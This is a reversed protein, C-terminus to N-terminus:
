AIDEYHWELVNEGLKNCVNEVTDQCGCDIVNIV